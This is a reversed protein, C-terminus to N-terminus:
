GSVARKIRGAAEGKACDSATLKLSPLRKLSSTRRGEINQMEEKLNEKLSNM